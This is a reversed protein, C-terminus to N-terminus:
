TKRAWFLLCMTEQPLFFPLMLGESLSLTHIPSTSFNVLKLKVKLWTTCHFLVHQEDQVDHANCLDCTSSTNHTWTVTETRLTHACLRFRAVSCIVDRPLDLLMYRSLTYPLHTVM